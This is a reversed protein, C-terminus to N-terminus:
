AADAAHPGLQEPSVSASFSEDVWDPDLLEGADNYLEQEYDNWGRLGTQLSVVNNYGMLKLTHAALISRNGSRCIVVVRRGRAEVLRPVAEEYGYDVAIELIGRPVNVSGQIHAAAFEDPCRIDLLLPSDPTFLTRFTGPFCRKSRPRYNRL